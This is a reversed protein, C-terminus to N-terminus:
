RKAKAGRTHVDSKLWIDLAEADTLWTKGYKVANLRERAIAYRLTSTTVHTLRAAETLTILKITTNM